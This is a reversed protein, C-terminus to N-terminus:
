ALRRRLSAITMSGLIGLVAAGPAPIFPGRGPVFVDSAGSFGGDLLSVNGVTWATANTELWVLASNQSRSIFTGGLNGSFLFEPNGAIDRTIAAPDGDSWSLSGPPYGVLSKPTSNGTGSSGADFIALGPMNWTALGFSAREIGDNTVSYNSDLSFQYVFGLGGSANTGNVFYVESLVTGTFPFAGPPPPSINALMHAAASATGTYWSPLGSTYHPVLTPYDPNNWADGPVLDAHVPAGAFLVAILACGSVLLRVQRM